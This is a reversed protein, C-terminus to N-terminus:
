DVYMCAHSTQQRNGQLLTPHFEARPCVVSEAQVDVEVFVVGRDVDAIINLTVLPSQDSVRSDPVDLVVRATFLRILVQREGDLDFADCDEVVVDEDQRTDQETAEREDDEPKWGLRRGFHHQTLNNHEDYM